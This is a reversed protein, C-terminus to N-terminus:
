RGAPSLSAWLPCTVQGLDSLLRHGLGGSRRPNGDRVGRRGREPGRWDCSQTRPRACGGATRGDARRDPHRRPRLRAGRGLRPPQAPLLLANAAGLGRGVGWAGRGCGVSPLAQARAGVLRHAPAAPAFDRRGAPPAIEPERARERSEPSALGALGPM